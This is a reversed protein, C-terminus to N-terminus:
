QKTELALFLSQFLTFFVIGKQREGISETLCMLGFILVFATHSQNSSKVLLFPFVCFLFAILGPIGNEMWVQLYQNHANHTLGTTSSNFHDYFNSLALQGSGTGSGLFLNKQIISWSGGWELLRYSVSNWNNVSTDAKYRTILPEEIVRFRAVPNVWLFFALVSLLTGIIVVRRGNAESIKRVILFLSTSVLAMIAMRSSLMAIFAVIVVGLLISIVKKKAPPNEYFLIVLCFVLYMSFYAPHLGAWRALEIYSFHMWTPSVQPHLVKFEDGTTLDFNFPAHGGNFFNFASYALCVLIVLVCSYVFSKSIFGFVGPTVPRGTLAILPLLLFTAKKGLTFFGYSVDSTYAMGIILVASYVAFPLIWRTTRIRELRYLLGKSSIWTLTLFGLCINNLMDPWPLTVACLWWGLHYWRDPNEKSFYSM